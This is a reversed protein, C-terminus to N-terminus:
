DDTETKPSATAHALLNRLEAARTPDNLDAETIKLALFGDKSYNGVTFGLKELRPKSAADDHLRIRTLVHSKSPTLMLLNNKGPEKVFPIYATTEQRQTYGSQTALETLRAQVSLGEAGVVPAKNAEAFSLALELRDLAETARQMPVSLHKNGWNRKWKPQSSIAGTMAQCREIIGILYRRDADSLPEDRAKSAIAVVGEETAEKQADLVKTVDDLRRQRRTDLYGLYASILEGLAIATGVVAIVATLSM